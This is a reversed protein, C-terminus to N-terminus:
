CVSRAAYGPSTRYDKMWYWFQSRFDVPGAAVRAIACFPPRLTRVNLCAPRYSWWFRIFVIFRCRIFGDRQDMRLSPTTLGSILSSMSNLLMTKVGLLQLLFLPELEGWPLMGGYLRLLTEIKSFVRLFQIYTKWAVVNLPGGSFQYSADFLQM